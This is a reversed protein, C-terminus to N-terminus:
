DDSGILVSADIVSEVIRPVSENIEQAVITEILKRLEENPDDPNVSVPIQFKYTSEKDTISSDGIYVYYDVSKSSNTLTFYDNSGNTLLTWTQVFNNSDTIKVLKGYSKPYVLVPYSLTSSVPYKITITSDMSKLVKTCSNSVITQLNDATIVTDGSLNCFYYPSIFKIFKGSANILGNEDYATICYKLIDNENGENYIILKDEKNLEESFSIDVLITGDDDKQFLEKNILKIVLPENENLQAIIEYKTVPYSMPIINGTAKNVEISSGTEYVSLLNTNNVTLNVSDVVPATEPMLMDKIIDKVSMNTLDTNESIGGISTFSKIKNKSLIVDKETLFRMNPM